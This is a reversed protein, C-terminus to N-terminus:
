LNKIRANRIEFKASSSNAQRLRIKGWGKEGREDSFVRHNIWVQCRDGLVRIRYHNWDSEDFSIGSGTNEADSSSQPLTARAEIWLDDKKKAHFTFSLSGIEESRIEGQWEFSPRPGAIELVAQGTAESPISEWGDGDRLAILKKRLMAKTAEHAPDSALNHWENPDTEFHYLEEEGNSCLTYRWDKARISFHPYPTGLHQKLQMHDKGPLATIAVDPGTWDGDPDFLLPKLSHGELTYGNGAANPDPDLGCLDNLTPYLDILSVPAHSKAGQKMGDVGAVMLPVQTAGDWLSQKYLFDKEGMHFGHDSTLIVITNDAESSAEIADLISGVQDDVFSVCALYAQIWQKLLDKEPHKALMQFRRFGYLEPNRLARATDETDGELIEPLVISDLPFRDFYEQPAYLPTHTRVLGVFLAFPNEHEQALIHEAFAAYREDPLLDRDGEAGHKWPEGFLTWGKYGPVDSEPQSRWDPIKSLSGFTQEWQYPVEPDADLLYQQDPHPLFGRAGSETGDWPWPGFNTRDGYDDFGLTKGIGGHYIKGAGFVGYGEDRFHQNLSVSSKLIENDLWNEFWYLGSTQPYIGFLLAARAPACIPDNTHANTFTVGKAALRDIHPTSVEPKGELHLPLYNLDDVIIFVVNPQEDSQGYTSIVFSLVLLGVLIPFYKM